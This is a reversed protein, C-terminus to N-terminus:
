MNINTQQDNYHPYLENTLFNELKRQQEMTNLKIVAYGKSCLYYKVDDEYCLELLKDGDINYSTLEQLQKYIKEFETNEIKKTTRRKM